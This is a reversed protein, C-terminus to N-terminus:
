ITYCKFYTKGQWQQRERKRMLSLYFRFYNITCTLQLTSCTVAMNISWQTHHSISTSDQTSNCSANSDSVSHCFIFWHWRVLWSIVIDSAKFSLITHRRHEWFYSSYSNIGKSLKKKIVIDEIRRMEKKELTRM